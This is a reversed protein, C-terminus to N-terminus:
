SEFIYLYYYDFVKLIDLNFVIVIKSFKLDRINIEYFTLTSVKM